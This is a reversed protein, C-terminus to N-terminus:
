SSAHPWQALITKKPWVVQMNVLTQEGHLLTIVNHWHVYMVVNSSSNSSATQQKYPIHTSHTSHPSYVSDLTYCVLALTFFVRTSQYPNSSYILM